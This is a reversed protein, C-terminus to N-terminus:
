CCIPKFLISVIFTRVIYKMVPKTSLPKSWKLKATTKRMEMVRLNRPTGPATVFLLNVKVV